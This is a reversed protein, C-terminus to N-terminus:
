GEEDEFGVEGEEVEGLAMGFDDDDGLAMAGGQAVDEPVLGMKGGEGALMLEIDEVDGAVAAHQPTGGAGGDGGDVVEGGEM